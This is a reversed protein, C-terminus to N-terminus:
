CTLPDALGQAVASPEVLPRGVGADNLHRGLPNPKVELVGRVHQQELREDSRHGCVSPTNSNRGLWLGLSELKGLAASESDLRNTGSIKHSEGALDGAGEISRRTEEDPSCAM